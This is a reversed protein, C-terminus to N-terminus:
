ARSRHSSPPPDALCVAAFMLCAPSLPLGDSPVLFPVVLRIGCSDTIRM